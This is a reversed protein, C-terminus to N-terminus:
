VYMIVLIIVFIDLLITLFGLITGAKARKYFKSDKPTQRKASVSLGYGIPTLIFTGLLAVTAIGLLVLFLGWNASKHGDKVKSKQLVTSSDLPAMKSQMLGKNKSPERWSTAETYIFNSNTGKIESATQIPNNKALGTFNIETIEDTEAIELHQTPNTGLVKTESRLGVKKKIESKNQSGRALSGLEVHFGRSYVRKEM